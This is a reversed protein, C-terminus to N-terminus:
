VQGLLHTNARNFYRQTTSDSSSAFYRSFCNSSALPWNRSITRRRGLRSAQRLASSVTGYDAVALTIQTLQISPMRTTRYVEVTVVMCLSVEDSVPEVYSVHWSYEAQVISADIPLAFPSQSIYLPERQTSSSSQSRGRRAAYTPCPYILDIVGLAHSDDIVTCLSANSLFLESANILDGGEAKLAERAEEESKGTQAIVLQVDDEDIKVNSTDAKGADKDKSEVLDPASCSLRPLTTRILRHISSLYSLLICPLLSAFSRHSPFTDAITWTLDLRGAGGAVCHCM